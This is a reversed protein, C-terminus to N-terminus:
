ARRNDTAVGDICQLATMGEHALTIAHKHLTAKRLNGPLKKNVTPIQPNNFVTNINARARDQIM